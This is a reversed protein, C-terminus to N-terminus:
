HSRIRACLEIREPSGAHIPGRSNVNQLIPYMTTMMQQGGRFAGLDTGLLLCQAYTLPPILGGAM